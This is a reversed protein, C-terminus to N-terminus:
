GCYETGVSISFKFVLILREEPLFRQCNGWKKKETGMTLFSNGAFIPVYFLHQAAALFLKGV